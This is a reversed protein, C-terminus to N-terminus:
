DLSGSDASIDSLLLTINFLIESQIPYLLSIQSACQERITRAFSDACGPETFAPRMLTIVMARHVLNGAILRTSEIKWLAEIPEHVDSM